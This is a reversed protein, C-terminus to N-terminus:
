KDSENSNVELFEIMKEIQTKKDRLAGDLAFLIKKKWHTSLETRFLRSFHGESVGAKRAIFFKPIGSIRIMESIERTTM